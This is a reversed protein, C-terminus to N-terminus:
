RRLLLVLFIGLGVLLLPWTVGFGIKCLQALSANALFPREREPAVAEPEAARVGALLPFKIRAANWEMRANELTTLARTLEVSFNEQTWLQENIGQVKGVSDRFESLARAM